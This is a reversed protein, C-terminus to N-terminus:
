PAIAVPDNNWRDLLYRYYDLVQDQEFTDSKPNEQTCTQYIHMYLFQRALSSGGSIEKESNGSSSEVKGLGLRQKLRGRAARM